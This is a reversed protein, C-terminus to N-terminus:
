YHHERVGAVLMALVGWAILGLVLTTVVGRIRRPYLPGDPQSPKAITELYLQQRQAENRAQELSALAGALQKDAFERELALREYEAAKSALSNEGGTIKEMEKTIENQLTQARLQLAPPHPSDPAFVRLQTLQSQTRMLEEQLRSIHQFHLETQKEPNVVAETNRYASVALAAAKAKEEAARVENEAFRVLDERARDNLNNVLREAEGLLIKNIEFSQEPTFSSVTLTTIGSAPDAVSAVRRPYYEFLAERSSNLDLPDFRRFIDIKEDGWSTRLDLRDDLLQLADRSLAYQSVTQVDEPARGFGTFGAGTLMGSLDSASGQKNPARVVFRSESVYVDTAYRGFYVAALITPLLVCLFFLAFRRFFGRRRPPPGQDIPPSIDTVPRAALQRVPPEDGRRGLVRMFLLTIGRSNGAKERPSIIETNTEPADQENAAAHAMARSRAATSELSSFAGTTAQTQTETDQPPTLAAEESPTSAAAPSEQGAEVPQPPPPMGPPLQPLTDHYVEAPLFAAPVAGGFEGAEVDYTNAVADDPETAAPEDASPPIVEAAEVLGDNTETPQSAHPVQDGTFVEGTAADAPEPQQLEGTQQWETAEDQRPRRELRPLFIRKPPVPLKAPTEPKALKM